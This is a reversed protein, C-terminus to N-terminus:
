RAIENLQQVMDPTLVIEPSALNGKLHALTTSKPITIVKEQRVLWNLAAQGPTVNLEAAIAKVRPHNLVGDKLPSYATLIIGRAQCFDLVGNREPERSLLSYRVQNTMIPTEALTIAQKMLSLDFNSVGLRKVKGGAVLENLARFTEALPTANNPWHILYLDVAEVGLRKLSANLAKHVDKYRLNTRWVKTTIFLDDRNFGKIARGVLEETHGSGYMEATDIHRYGLAISEKLRDVLAAEQSRDSSMGGGVQWTGLGLVPIQSGDLLTEYHMIIFRLSSYDKYQLIGPISLSIRQAAASFLLM